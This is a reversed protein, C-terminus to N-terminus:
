PTDTSFPSVWIDSDVSVRLIGWFVLSLYYISLIRFCSWKHTINGRETWQLLFFCQLFHSNWIAVTYRCKIIIGPVLLQQCQIVKLLQQTPLREHAPCATCPHWGAPPIPAAATWSGNSETCSRSGVHAGLFGATKSVGLCSEIIIIQALIM